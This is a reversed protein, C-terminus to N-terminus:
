IESAALLITRGQVNIMVNGEKLRARRERVMPAVVREGIARLFEVYSM